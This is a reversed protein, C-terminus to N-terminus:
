KFEDILQYIQKCYPVFMQLLVYCQERSIINETPHGSENRFSRIVASIGAFNTDLDARMPQPLAKRNQDLINKFKNIRRLASTESFVSKYTAYHTGNSRITELLKEFSHEASVGLM